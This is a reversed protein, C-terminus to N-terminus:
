PVPVPPLTYFGDAFGLVLRADTHSSPTVAAFGTDNPLGRYAAAVDTRVVHVAGGGIVKGAADTVAVCRLSHGAWAIWGDFQRTSGVIQDHDLSGSKPLLTAPLTKVKSADITADPKLGCGITYDGTFPYSGLGKLRSVVAPPNQLRAAFPDTAGFRVGAAMENQIPTEGATTAYLQPSGAWFVLVAAAVAAIGVTSERATRATRIAVVAVAIWFLGSLSVYRAQAGDGLFVESRGLSILGAAVVAYVAVGWWPILDDLDARDIVDARHVRDAREVRGAPSTAGTPVTRRTWYAVFGIALVALGAAGAVLGFTGGQPDWLTSLNTLFTQSLLGPDHSVGKGTTGGNSTLKYVVLGGFFLGLPLGWRWWRDRQLLAVAVVALPAAFGTGYSLLAMAAAATALGTRRDRAFLVGLLGFVNAALWATGSMGKLYNWAGTPCFLVASAALLFLVRGLAPWRRPLLLWLVALSALGMLISFYGLEHNTGSFLKADLYYVVQPTFFPHENQYSFLGRLHLSGDPNTIRVLATWYDQYQMQTAHSVRRAMLLAPLLALLAAYWAPRVQRARQDLTNLWGPGTAPRDGARAATAETAPGTTAPGTSAAGVATGRGSSGSQPSDPTDGNSSGTVTTDM